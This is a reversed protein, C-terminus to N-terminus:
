MLLSFIGGQFVTRSFRMLDKKARNTLKIYGQNQATFPHFSIVTSTKKSVGEKKWHYLLPTVTRSKAAHDIPVLLLLSVL